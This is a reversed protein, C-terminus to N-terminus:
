LKEVKTLKARSPSSRTSVRGESFHSLRGCQRLCFIERTSSFLRRLSGHQLVQGVFSRTWWLGYRDASRRKAARTEELSKRNASVLEAASRRQSLVTMPISRDVDAVAQDRSDYGLAIISPEAIVARLTKEDPYAIVLQEPRPETRIAIVAYRWTSVEVIESM